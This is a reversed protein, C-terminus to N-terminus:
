DGDNDQMFTGVDADSTKEYSNGPSEYASIWQSLALYAHGQNWRMHPLSRRNNRFGGDDGQLSLLHGIALEPDTSTKQFEAMRALFGVSTAVNHVDISEKRDGAFYVPLGQKNFCHKAWFDYGKQIAQLTGYGRRDLLMLSDLNYVTHFSDIWELGAGEGYPWSGDAAQKEVTAAVSDSVIHRDGGLIEVGEAALLNGNHILRSSSETYRFHGKPDWLNTLWHLTESSVEDLRQAAAFARLTFVTAVVNPSFAPYHAWRTQVDFEYGWPGAGKDNLIRDILRNAVDPRSALTAGHAFLALAKTMSVRPVGTISRIRNGSRKHAQVWIQRARRGKLYTAAPSLLGDYPDTGTYDEHAAFALARREAEIVANRATM